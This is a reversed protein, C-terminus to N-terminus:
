EDWIRLVPFGSGQAQPGLFDAVLLLAPDVETSLCNFLIPLTRSPTFDQLALETEEEALCGDRVSCPEAEEHSEVEDLCEVPQTHHGM